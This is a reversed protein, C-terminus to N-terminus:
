KFLKLIGTVSEAIDKVNDIATEAKGSAATAKDTIASLDVNNVLDTIGNMISSGNKSTVLNDSGKILGTLFDKYFQTKSTQGKLGKVNNAFTALNLMNNINSMDLKGDAKFQTYLSRLAAGAARGNSIADDVVETASSSKKNFLNKLVQADASVAATTFAVASVIMIRIIRKMTIM